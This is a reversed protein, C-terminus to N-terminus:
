KKKVQLFSGRHHLSPFTCPLDFSIFNNYNCVKVDATQSMLSKIGFNQNYTSEAISSTDSFDMEPLTGTNKNFVPNYTSVRENLCM